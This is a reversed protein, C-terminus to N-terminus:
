EGPEFVLLKRTDYQSLVLRDETITYRTSQSMLSLIEQEQEMVGPPELCYKESISIPGFIMLNGDLQYDSSYDNCGASGAVTGDEFFRMTIDTGPLPPSFEGQQNYSVLHWSYACIDCPPVRGGIDSCGGCLCIAALFLLLLIRTDM